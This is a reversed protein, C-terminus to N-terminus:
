FDRKRKIIPILLLIFSIEPILFGTTIQDPSKNSLSDDEKLLALYRPDHNLTKGKWVSFCIRYLFSVEEVGLQPIVSLNSMESFFSNWFSYFAQPTSWYQVQEKYLTDLSAPVTNAFYIAEEMGLSYFDNFLSQYIPVENVEITVNLMGSTGNKIEFDVPNESSVTTGFLFSLSSNSLDVDSLRVERGIGDVYFEYADWSGMKIALKLESFTKNIELSYTFNLSDIKTKINNKPIVSEVVTSITPALFGIVETYVVKWTYVSSFKSTSKNIQPHIFKQSANLIVFYNLEEKLDLVNNGNSDQYIELGLLVIGVFFQDNEINFSQGFFPYVPAGKSEEDFTNLSLLSTNSVNLWTYSLDLGNYSIVGSIYEDGVPISTKVGALALNCSSLTFGLLFISSIIKKDFNIRKL